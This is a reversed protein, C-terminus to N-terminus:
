VRVCQGVCLVVYQPLVSGLFNFGNDLIGPPMKAMPRLNQFVASFDFKLFIQFFKMKM